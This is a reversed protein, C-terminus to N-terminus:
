ASRQAPQDAPLTAAIHLLGDTFTTRVELGLDALLRPLVPQDPPCTSTVHTTGRAGALQVLERVLRSGIGRRQHGDEVVVKLDMTVGTFRGDAVGIVESGVMAVMALRNGRRGSDLLDALEDHHLDPLATSWRRVRTSRSCRRHMRRLAPGDNPRLLRLDVAGGDALLLAEPRRGPSPAPSEAAITVMSRVLAQVRATETYSFRPRLRVLVLLRPRGGIEYPLALMWPADDRGPGAAAIPERCQVPTHTTWARGAAGSLNMGSTATWATDAGVLSAAATAISEPSGGTLGVGHLLELARTARDVLQHIEFPRADLVKCAGGQFLEEFWPLDVPAPLGVVLDDAVHDEDLVHVDVSEINGGVGALATAAAALQGARDELEIWLRYHYV